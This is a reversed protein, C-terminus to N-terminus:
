KTDKLLRRYESCESCIPKGKYSPNGDTIKLTGPSLKCIVCVVM